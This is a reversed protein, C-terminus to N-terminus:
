EDPLPLHGDAALAPGREDALLGGSGTVPLTRSPLVYDVRVNGPPEAFDATDRAPDGLHEDNVGGQFESQEVAGESTPVHADRVRPNDLLPTIAGDVSDGDLPDANQDGAIVFSAGRPLGGSEGEDDHIYDATAGGTVYDSWFRIEHPRDQIVADVSRM